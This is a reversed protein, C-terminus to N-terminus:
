VSYIIICSFLIKNCFGMETFGQNKIITINKIMMEGREREKEHAGRQMGGGDMCKIDKITCIMITYVAM